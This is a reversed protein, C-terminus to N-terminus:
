SIVPSAAYVNHTGANTHCGLPHLRRTRRGNGVTVRECIQQARRLNAGPRTDRTVGRAWAWAWPALAAPPPRRRQESDVLRPACRSPGAGLRHPGTVCAWRAGALAREVIRRLGPFM